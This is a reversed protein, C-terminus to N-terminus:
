IGGAADIPEKSIVNAPPRTTASCTTPPCDPITFSFTAGEGLRSQVWIQGGHREVIRKCTALGLGVGTSPLEEDLQRFPAFVKECEECRIGIGNDRLSFLWAESERVASAHIAPPATSRYKISNEILNQFLEAVLVPDARLVPLPGSTIQACCLDLDAMLRQKVDALVTQCDCTKRHLERSGARGYTLLSQIFGSMCTLEHRIASVCEACDANVENSGYLALLEARLGITNLPGRLDHAVVSAFRELEANSRRLEATAFRLSQTQSMLLRIFTLRRKVLVFTLWLVGAVMVRDFLSMWWFAGPAEAFYGIGTLVTCLVTMFLLFRRRSAGAAVVPVLSYGIAATAGRPLMIDTVLFVVAIAISIVYPWPSSLLIPSPVLSVDSSDSRRGSGDSGDGLTSPIM